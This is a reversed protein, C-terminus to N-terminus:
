QSVLKLNLIAGVRSVCVDSKGEATLKTTQCTRDRCYDSRIGAKQIGAASAVRYTVDCHGM